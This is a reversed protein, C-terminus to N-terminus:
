RIWFVADPRGDPLIEETLDLAFRADVGPRLVEIELPATGIVAGGDDHWVFLM